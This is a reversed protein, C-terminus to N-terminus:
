YEVFAGNEDLVFVRMLYGETPHTIVIGVMDGDIRHVTQCVDGSEHDFAAGTIERSRDSVIGTLTVRYRSVVQDNANYIQIYFCDSVQQRDDAGSARRPGFAALGTAAIGALIVCALIVCCIRKKLWQEGM